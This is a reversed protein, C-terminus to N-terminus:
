DNSKNKGWNVKYRMDLSGDKCRPSSDSLSRGSSSGNISSRSHSISLSPCNYHQSIKNEIQSKLKEKEEKEKKIKEELVQNNKLVVKINEYNLDYFTKWCTDKELCNPTQSSYTTQLNYVLSEYQQISLCPSVNCKRRILDWESKLYNEFKKTLSESNRKYFTLSEGGIRIKNSDRIERFEKFNKEFSDVDVIKESQYQAYGDLKKKFESLLDKAIENEINEFSSWDLPFKYNQFNKQMELRYRNKMDKLTNESLANIADTNKKIYHAYVGSNTNADFVYMEFEAKFEDFNSVSINEEFEKLCSNRISKESLQFDSWKIPFKKFTLKLAELMDVVYIIKDNNLCDVINRIYEAFMHGKLNTGNIRKIEVNDKITKCLKNVEDYFEGKFDVWNYNDIDLLLKRSPLGNSHQLDPYPLYFANIRKFSENIADKTEKMIETNQDFKYDRCLWLLEPYDNTNMQSSSNKRIKGSIHTIFSIKELDDRTYTGTTNYIFYSSLLLSLIFIKSDWEKTVESSELGETDLLILKIKDGNKNQHEIIKPSLYIGKTCPQNVHSIPFGTKSNIELLRNMLFSKGIRKKGITVIVGVPEKINEIITLGNKDLVLKGNKYQEILQIINAM